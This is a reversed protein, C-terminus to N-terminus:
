RRKGKGKLKAAHAKPKGKPPGTRAPSAGPKGKSKNRRATMDEAFTSRKKGTKAPAAKVQTIKGAQAAKKAQRVASSIAGSTVRTDNRADRLADQRRKQKHNLKKPGRAKEEFGSNYQATGADKAKKKDGESQFWTRRPRGAIEQKYEILNQGKKAEMEARRIEKEEREEQMVTNIEAQLETVRDTAEKIVEPPLVRQKFRDAPAAKTAQKVMKRDSDGVLTLARGANGARATRGVRHLYIDFSGPMEFNIVSQVGKIDLGRSALDTACLHTATGEKFNQLSQLRQEQSLDGHLEEAALGCLGLLIRARHAAQKSRFFIITQGRFTRQCIALLAAERSAPTDKRIRLFEQMLSEVTTGTEDIKIRVPKDLSLRALENVDETITASFLLSQRSRPCEKIIETLEDRFGEELIRDAEDIILIELSDLTFTSTNRVHDILRGPTSVVVDPRQRLEAEQVKLSLGGVCLCFSIDTYRALAKGVSHVQVALERTPCIVLVRTRADKKDRYLLRELVGLWFAVTKGSGTNSSAVIDKGMLAVPITQAQIRTPTTLGLAGLALLLPRSLRANPLSAFPPLATEASPAVPAKEFYAEAAATEDAAQAFRMDVSEPIAEDDNDDDDIIVNALAGFGNIGDIAENAAESTGEDAPIEEEDEAMEVIKGDIAEEAEDSESGAFFDDEDEDEDAMSDDSADDDELRPKQHRALIEGTTVRPIGNKKKFLDITENMDWLDAAGNARARQALSRMSNGGMSDFDFAANLVLGDEDKGAKQGKRSKASKAAPQADLLEAASAKRKGKSKQSQERKAPAKASSASALPTEQEDDPGEEDSSLTLILDDLQKM